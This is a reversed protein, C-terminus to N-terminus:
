IKHLMFRVVFIALPTGEQGCGTQLATAVCTPIDSSPIHPFCYAALPLGITSTDGLKGLACASNAFIENSLVQTTQNLSSMCNRGFGALQTALAGLTVAEWRVDDVGNSPKTRLEPIYKTIPDEFWSFQCELLLAYVTFM